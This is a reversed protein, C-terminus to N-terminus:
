HTAAAQSKVLTILDELPFAYDEVHLGFGVGELISSRYPPIARKDDSSPAASIEYYSYGNKNVCQGKFMDPYLRFPTSVAPPMNMPTDATFLTQALKVPFYSGAFLGTNGVLTMPDTCANTNGTPAQGFVSNAPPPAEKAFSNFAVVCGAQDKTTCLKINKFTGGVDKGSPAYLLGSPAGLLVASILKGRLTADTDVTKAILNILKMTGQSHGMLVFRRGSNYHDLYYQFAKEVDGDAVAADGTFMGSGGDGGGGGTAISQQRYLPAYVKCLQRFPAAQALLPDLILGIDSFDTVNGKGSLDVTPYVYFCDFDPNAATEIKKVSTTGDKAIVTADIDDLCENPDSGPLCLWLAPDSYDLPASTGTNKLHSRDRHSSSGADSQKSGGDSQKSGGTNPQHGGDSAGTSGGTSPGSDGNGADGGSSKSETSCGALASAALVIFPFTGLLVRRLM